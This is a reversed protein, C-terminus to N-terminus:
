EKKPSIVTSKSTVNVDTKLSLFYFYDFTTSILKKKRKNSTSPLIRIWVLSEPDPDQLGLFM